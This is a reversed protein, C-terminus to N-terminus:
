LPNVEPTESAGPHSAALSDVFGQLAATNEQVKAVIAEAQGTDGAAVANLWEQHEDALEAGLSAIAQTQEELAATVSQGPDTSMTSEQQPPNTTLVSLAETNRRIAAAIAADEAYSRKKELRRVSALIEKLLSEVEKNSVNIKVTSM